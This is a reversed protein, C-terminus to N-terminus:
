CIHTSPVSAPDERFASVCKVSSGYRWGECHWSKLLLKFDLNKHFLMWYSNSSLSFFGMGQRMLRACTTGSSSLGWKAKSKSVRYSAEQVRQRGKLEKAKKLETRTVRGHGLALSLTQRENTTVEKIEVTVRSCTRLDVWCVKRGPATNQSGLHWASPSMHPVSFEPSSSLGM